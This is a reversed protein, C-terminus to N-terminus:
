ISEIYNEIDKMCCSIESSGEEVSKYWRITREITKEFNWNSKWQLLNYALDSALNLHSAEHISSPNPNKEHWQGPWIELAKNILDKVSKNSDQEPGFNYSRAYTNNTSIDKNKQELYLKEALVIYGTLPELVHQWPRIASPNRVEISNQRTLARITDPIIRNSSWDGGGIVNGARATAIALKRTQNRSGGCFSKRWSDVAIELAAKSASYPDHGGLPDSEKYQYHSEKNRYVKDTTIVVLACERKLSKSAEMLNLTGILNTEWTSIPDQYSDIVLAQAALHFIIDPNSIELYEKLTNLDNINGIKHHMKDVIIKETSNFIDLQNFLCKSTKPELSYGWIEAGLYQILLTLWTGKFGTHGTILVKKGKWFNNGKYPNVPNNMELIEM